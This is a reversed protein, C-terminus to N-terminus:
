KVRYGAAIMAEVTDSIDLKCSKAPKGFLRECADDVLELQERAEKQEPTEPKRMASIHARHIGDKYAVIHMGEEFPYPAIYV